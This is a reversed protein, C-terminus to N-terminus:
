NQSSAVFLVETRVVPRPFSEPWTFYLTQTEQPNIREISTKSFTIRNDDKDYLVIFANINSFSQDVTNNKINVEARPSFGQDLEVNLSQLNTFQKGLKWPFEGTFEFITKVPIREGTRIGGDFVAFKQGAPIFASGRRESILVGKEDYLKFMYQVKSVEVGQNPNQIYALANYVGPVVRISHAWLVRPEMFDAPCLRSCKGGCDLGSEGGNQKNDFCTPAKYLVFFAPVGIIVVIIFILGFLYGYKRRTSWSAM